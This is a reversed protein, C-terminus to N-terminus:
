VYGAVWYAAMGLWEKFLKQWLNIADAKPVLLIDPTFYRPHTYFDGSFCDAGLGVKDFCARARRMHFASTILLCREGPVDALLNKVNVANEHTNASTNEIVIHERPVGAMVMVSALDDAEPRGSTLLRGVGGSIVIKRIIGMKYLQIAHTVRDAGHHFYVRDAPERDNLAVGTLVIGWDYTKNMAAYPTAEVEWARMVENAIFDNSFFLLSGLAVWFLRKRLHAKKTFLGAAFFGFVIVLPNALFGLVKSLVFFM